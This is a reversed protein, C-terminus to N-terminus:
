QPTRRREGIVVDNNVAYIFCNGDRGNRAPDSNCQQLAAGQALLLSNGGSFIFVKGWPHIAMAKPEMANDYVQVDTRKRTIARIIPIQAPDYKGSYHLRPMDKTVLEGEVAIEEDVAVLACPKGFRLQCAELSRTGIDATEEHECSRFYESTALAVAQGRHSKCAVYDRVLMERTAASVSPTNAAIISAMAKEFQSKREAKSLAAFAASPIGIFIVLFTSFKM